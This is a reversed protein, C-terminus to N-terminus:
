TMAMNATLSPLLTNHPNNSSMSGNNKAQLKNNTEEEEDDHDNDIIRTRVADSSGHTSRYCTNDIKM